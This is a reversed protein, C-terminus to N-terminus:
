QRRGRSPFLGLLDRGTEGQHALTTAARAAPPREPPRAPPVDDDGLQELDADFLSFFRSEGTDRGPAAVINELQYGQRRFRRECLGFGELGLFIALMIAFSSFLVSGFTGLVLLLSVALMALIWLGLSLWLGRAALWFPGFWFAGWSFSQKVFRARAARELRAEAKDATMGLTAGPAEPPLYIAYLAM